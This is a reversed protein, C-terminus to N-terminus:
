QDAGSARRRRHRAQALSCLEDILDLMSLGEAAWMRPFSSRETFGPLTNVENLLLRETGHEVFFDVRAMGDIRFAVAVQRAVRTVQATQEPSLPAPIVSLPRGAAYKADFDLWNRRTASYKLPSLRYGAAGPAGLVGCSVEDGDVGEEIIM